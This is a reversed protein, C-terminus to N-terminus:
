SEQEKDKVAKVLDRWDIGAKIYREPTVATGEYALFIVLYKSTDIKKDRVKIIPNNWSYYLLKEIAEKEESDPTENFHDFILVSYPRRGVYDAMFDVAGKYNQTIKKNVCDVHIVNAKCEDIKEDFKEKFDSLPIHSALIYYGIKPLMAKTDKSKLQCLMDKSLSVDLEHIIIKKIMWDHNMDDSLKQVYDDINSDGIGFLGM